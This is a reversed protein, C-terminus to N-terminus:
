RLVALLGDQIASHILKPSVKQVVKGDLYELAPKAEPLRLFQELTLGDYIVEAEWRQVVRGDVYELPPVTAPLRAYQRATLTDYIVPGM